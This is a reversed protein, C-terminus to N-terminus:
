HHVNGQTEQTSGNGDALPKSPKNAEKAPIASLSGDPAASDDARSTQFPVSEVVGMVFASFRNDHSAAEREISRVTPMDRYDIVRGLGYALLNETFTGLFADSHNLLAQRLSVPGDLKTGDFLQGKADVPLGGDNIRWAGVADFNELAFGIPDILKHCAACTPNKRHAEMRERVSMLKVEGSSANDALAPVNPPPPPPPTGLLVELVYKGRQVPSSRNSVSTLTLISGQGLLGRRNEDPIEVRRFRAGLVNPIKYHKALIEDVFTYNATLLDLVNRDERVFSDFFLETERQMSRGLNTDFNPYLYADPQADKLNQLHLWETAFNTSLVEAKPDALMRRVQQELVPREHLKGQSALTILEDDPASSWLFYSLRSALELDSIRYNSGPAVNEPSPEFRFIFKPNAIMAQIAMRIGGEFGDRNRGSVYLNLLEEVDSDDAPRRYAQRVLQSIIKRACAVDDGAAPRCTFIKRRSPTDGLGSANFPGSIALDHLHPLSTIGAMDAENLDVLSYEIPTVVDQLPGEFHQIFAASVRQPGAKVKIPPTQLDDWKTRKPDIDLLAVRSGNISVEIQEGKGQSKGFLPGDVSYYFTMKFVYEADLPFDYVVSLGGRTGIPAGEVHRMQSVSKSLQYTTVSPTTDIDGVALRSIKGATRIYADMLAPSLNLADAMNDFGHSMDDAPLLPAVDVKVGLLDRISNAYETRNLRHLAPRGPYPHAAAAQDIGSELASVFAKNAAADPRPMGAPPMLGALLKHIVKELQESSQDPHALDVSTWSFGGSKLKDNHCGQCYKGVLAHENEVTFTAPASQAWGVAGSFLLLSVFSIKERM